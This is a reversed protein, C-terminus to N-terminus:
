VSIYEYNSDEAIVRSGVGGEGATVHVYAPKRAYAFEFGEV